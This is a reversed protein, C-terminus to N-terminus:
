RPLPGTAPCGSWCGASRPPGTTTSTPRRPMRSRSACWTSVRASCAGCRSSLRSAPAPRHPVSMGIVGRVKDPRMQAVAWAVPAGWDHGAVVARDAGLADILGVADGALHLITYQDAEAPGGTRAYGRQDPAVAHFGAEALATLQHRWSYWCEPFGHLLLVLPGEGAEAVHMRLGSESQVFRHTIETM